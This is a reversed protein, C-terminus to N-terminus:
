HGVRPLGHLWDDPKALIWITLELRINGVWVHRKLMDSPGAEQEIWRALEYRDDPRPLPPLNDRDVTVTVGDPWAVDVVQRPTNCADRLSARYLVKLFAKIQPHDELLDLLKQGAARGKATSLIERVLEQRDLARGERSAQLIDKLKQRYAPPLKSVLRRLTEFIMERQIGGADTPLVTTEDVQSGTWVCGYVQAQSLDANRFDCQLFDTGRVDGIITAGQLNCRGIYSQRLHGDPFTSADITHGSLDEDTRIIRSM